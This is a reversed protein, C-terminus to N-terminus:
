CTGSWTQLFDISKCGYIALLRYNKPSTTPGKKHVPTIKVRNWLHPTVGDSLFLHFLDTLLPLLVHETHRKGRDDQIAKEAHKIFSNSFPVFGPGSQVNMNSNNKQVTTALTHIPPLEYVPAQENSRQFTTNISRYRGGPGAPVAIDSPSVQGSRLQDSLLQHRTPLNFRGPLVDPASEPPHV